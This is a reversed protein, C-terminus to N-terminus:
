LGINRCLKPIKSKKMKCVELRYKPAAARLLLVANKNEYIILTNNKFAVAHVFQTQNQITFSDFKGSIHM